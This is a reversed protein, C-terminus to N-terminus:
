KIYRFLCFIYQFFKVLFVSKIKITIGFPINILMFKKKMFISKLSKNFDCFLFQTSIFYLLYFTRRHM